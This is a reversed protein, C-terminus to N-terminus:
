NGITTPFSVELPLTYCLRHTNERAALVETEIDLTQERAALVDPVQAGQSHFPGSQM